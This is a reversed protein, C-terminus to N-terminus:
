ETPEIDEVCERIARWFKYDQGLLNPQCEAFKILVILKQIQNESM